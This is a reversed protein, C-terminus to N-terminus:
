VHILENDASFFHLNEVMGETFLAKFGRYNKTNKETAIVWWSLAIIVITTWFARSISRLNGGPIPRRHRRFRGMWLLLSPNYFRGRERDEVIGYRKSRRLSCLSEPYAKANRARPTPTLPVDAVVDRDMEIGFLALL